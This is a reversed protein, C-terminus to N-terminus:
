YNDDTFQFSQFSADNIDNDSYDDPGAFVKYPGNLGMRTVLKMGTKKKKKKKAEPKKPEETKQVATICKAFYDTATHVYLHKKKEFTLTTGNMHLHFASAKTDTKPRHTNKFRDDMYSFSLLNTPQHQDYWVEGINPVTAKHKICVVGASTAMYLPKEAERIDTVLDPNCFLAPVSCGTDLIIERKHDEHFSTKYKEKTVEVTLTAVGHKTKDKSKKSSTSSKSATESSESDDEEDDSFNPMEAVNVFWKERPIKEREQLL